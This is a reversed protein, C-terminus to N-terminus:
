LILKEPVGFAGAPLKKFVRIFMKHDESLDKKFDNEIRKLIDMAINQQGRIRLSDVVALLQGIEGNQFSEALFADFEKKDNHVAYQISWSDSIYATVPDEPSYYNSNEDAIASLNAGMRALVNGSISDEICGSIHKPTKTIDTIPFDLNQLFAKGLISMAMPAIEGASTYGIWAIVAYKGSEVKIGSVFDSGNIKAFADGIYLMGVNKAYPKVELTKVLVPALPQSKFILEANKKTFTGDISKDFSVFYGDCALKSAVEPKSALAWGLYDGDANATMIKIFNSPSKKCSACSDADDCKDCEPPIRTSVMLAAVEVNFWADPYTEISKSFLSSPPFKIQNEILWKDKEAPILPAFFDINVNKDDNKKGFLGM